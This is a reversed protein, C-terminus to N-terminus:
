KVDSVGIENTKQQLAATLARNLETQVLSDAQTSAVAGQVKQHEKQLKEYEERLEKIEKSLSANEEQLKVHQEELQIHHAANENAAQQDLRMRTQLSVVQELRESSQVLAECRAKKEKEM